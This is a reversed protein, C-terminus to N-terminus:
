RNPYLDKFSCDPSENFPTNEEFIKAASQLHLNKLVELWEDTYSYTETAETTFTWRDEVLSFTCFALDVGDLSTGSMLGIAKIVPSKENKLM